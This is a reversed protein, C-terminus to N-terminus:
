GLERHTSWFNESYRFNPLKEVIAKSFNGKFAKDIISPLLADLEQETEAQLSRLTASEDNIVGHDASAEKIGTIDGAM